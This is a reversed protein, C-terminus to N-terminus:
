EMWIRHSGFDAVVPIGSEPDRYVSVKGQVGAIDRQSHAIVSLRYDQSWPMEVIAAYRRAMGSDDVIAVRCTVPEATRYIESYRRYLKDNEASGGKMGAVVILIILLI